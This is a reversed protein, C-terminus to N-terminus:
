VFCDEKKNLTRFVFSIRGTNRTLLPIVLYFSSFGELAGDQVLFPTGVVFYLLGAAPAL